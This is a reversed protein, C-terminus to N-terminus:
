TATTYRTAANVPQMIDQYIQECTHVGIRGMYTLAEEPVEFRVIYRYNGGTTVEGSADMPYAENSGYYTMNKIQHTRSLHKLFNEAAVSDKFGVKFTNNINGQRIIVDTANAIATPDKAKIETVLQGSARNTNSSSPANFLTPATSAQTYVPITQRQPRPANPVQLPTQTVAPAPFQKQIAVLGQQILSNQPLSLKVVGGGIAFPKGPNANQNQWGLVVGGQQAFTRVYDLDHQIVRDQV